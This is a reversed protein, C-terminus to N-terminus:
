RLGQAQASDIKISDWVIKDEVKHYGHRLVNGMGTLGKWDIEPCITEGDAKLRTAAESIIQLQREVASKTKLDAQYAKFDIGAVFDDINQISEEIDLLHARVERFPM